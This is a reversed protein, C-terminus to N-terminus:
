RRSFQSAIAVQASCCALVVWPTSGQIWVLSALALLLLSLPITQQLLSPAALWAALRRAVPLCACALLSILLLTIPVPALRMDAVSAVVALVAYHLPVVLLAAPGRLSLAQTVRQSQSVLKTCLLWAVVVATAAAVVFGASVSGWRFFSAGRLYMGVALLLGLLAGSLAATRRVQLNLQPVTRAAVFGALPAVLWPSLPYSWGPQGSVGTVWILASREAVLAAVSDRNAYRLGLLVLVAVSAWVVPAKRTTIGALVLMSLAIFGFFDMGWPHGQSWVLFQDALVLWAAKRALSRWDVPIGSPKLGAGVGTAFFFFVPALSGASVLLGTWGNHAADYTLWAFGAHNVVMALAAIGKFVDLAVSWHRQGDNPRQGSPPQVGAVSM